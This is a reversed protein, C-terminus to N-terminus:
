LPCAGTTSCFFAQVTTSANLTLNCSGGTQTCPGIDVLMFGSNAVPTLAVNAGAAYTLTCITTNPDTSACNTPGSLPAPSANVHGAGYVRLTLMATPAPTFRATVNRAQSMTVICPGTTATCDGMWGGFANDPAPNAVLTVMTGVDYDETCDAGCNIGSSSTATVVTGTGNGGRAVTLTFRPVDFRADVTTAANITVTCTSAAGTCAGTWGIFQSSGSAAATLNVITGEPYAEECDAGCNIGAPSSTVTGTGTGSRTVVLNHSGPPADIQVAADVSVSADITPASVSGCGILALGVVVVVSTISRSM